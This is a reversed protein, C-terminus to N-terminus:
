EDSSAYQDKVEPSDDPEIDGEWVWEESWHAGSETRVIEGGEGPVPRGTARLAANNIGSMSTGAARTIAEGTSACSCLSLAAACLLFARKM